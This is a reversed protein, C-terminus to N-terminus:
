LIACKRSEKVSFTSISTVAGCFRNLLKAIDTVSRELYETQYEPSVSETCLILQKTECTIKTPEADRYNWRRTLVRGEDKYIIEGGVIEEAPGGGLPEFAEGGQSTYLTINGRITSLDYGGIPLLFRLESALYANVAASIEPLNDSKLARKVFAESTPPHKKPSVGM